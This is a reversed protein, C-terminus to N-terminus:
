KDNKGIVNIIKKKYIEIIRANYGRVRTSGLKLKGVRPYPDPDYILELKFWALGLGLWSM